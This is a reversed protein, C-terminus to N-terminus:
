EIRINYTSNEYKNTTLQAELKNMLGKIMKGIEKTAILINDINDNSLMNVKVCILLQTELEALSGRAISLFQIFEKSSNRSQGEAINSPISVASRRIQDSIGYTEEKPLLKIINYVEVVLDMAKQWVQLEKYDSTKM